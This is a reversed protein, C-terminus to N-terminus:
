HSVTDGPSGKTPTQTRALQALEKLRRANASSKVPVLATGNTGQPMGEIAMLLQIAKMRM